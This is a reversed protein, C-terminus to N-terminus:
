IKVIHIHQCSGAYKFTRYAGGWSHRVFCIIFDSNKVMYENRKIIKYRHPTNDPNDAILISDYKEYYQEKNENIDSTLYPIILILRVDPHENKLSRVAKASLSDFEGYNGVWFESVKEETIMKEILIVLKNYLDDACFIQSHGAFCCINKM